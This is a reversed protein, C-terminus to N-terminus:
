TPPGPFDPSSPSLVQSTCTLGPDSVVATLLAITLFTVPTCFNSVSSGTVACVALCNWSADILSRMPLKSTVLYPRMIKPAMANSTPTMMM